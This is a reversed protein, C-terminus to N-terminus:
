PKGSFKVFFKIKKKHGVLKYGAKKFLKMSKTNSTIVQAFLISNFNIKSEVKKLAQYAFNKRTMKKVVAITVRHYFNELDLRIYGVKLRSSKQYILFFLINKDKLKKKLWKNHSKFKIKKKNISTKKVEKSSKLDFIFLSDNFSAKRLFISM